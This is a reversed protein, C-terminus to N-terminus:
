LSNEEIVLLRSLDQREALDRISGQNRVPNVSASPLKETVILFFELFLVQHTSCRNEIPKFLLSRARNFSICFKKPPIPDITSSLLFSLMSNLTEDKSSSKVTTM